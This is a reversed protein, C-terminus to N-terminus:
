ASSPMRSIDTHSSNLRTSKRDKLGYTYQPASLDIAVGIAKPNAEGIKNILDAIISRPWPWSGFKAISKADIGVITIEDNAPRAPMLSVAFDYAKNELGQM